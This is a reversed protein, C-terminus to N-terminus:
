SPQDTGYSERHLNVAEGVVAGSEEREAWFSVPSGHADLWMIWTSGDDRVGEIWGDFLDAVDVTLSTTKDGIDIHATHLHEDRKYRGITINQM